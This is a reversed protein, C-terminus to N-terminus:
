LPSSRRLRGSMMLGRLFEANLGLLVACPFAALFDGLDFLGHEFFGIRLASLSSSAMQRRASFCAQGFILDAHTLAQRDGSRGPLRELARGERVLEEGSPM